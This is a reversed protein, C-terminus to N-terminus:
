EESSCQESRGDMETNTGEDASVSDGGRKANELLLAMKKGKGSKIVEENASFGLSLIEALLECEKTLEKIKEQLDPVDKVLEKIKEAKAEIHAVGSEFFYAREKAESSFAEKTDKLGKLSKAIVGITTILAIISTLVGVVVPVIKDQIYAKVNISTETENVTEAFCSICLCFCLVLAFALFLVKKM